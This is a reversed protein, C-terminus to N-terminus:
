ESEKEIKSKQISNEENKNKELYLNKKKYIIKTVLWIIVAITISLIKGIYSSLLIWGFNDNFGGNLIALGGYYIFSNILSALFACLIFILYENWNKQQLKQPLKLILFVAVFTALASLINSLLGYTVGSEIGTSGWSACFQLVANFLVAGIGSYMLLYATKNQNELVLLIVCSLFLTYIVSDIGFVFNGDVIPYDIIHYVNSGVIGGIGLTILGNSGFVHKVIFLLVFCFVSVILILWFGM